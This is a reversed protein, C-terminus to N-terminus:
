FTAGLRPRGIFAILIGLQEWVGENFGSAQSALDVVVNPDLMIM